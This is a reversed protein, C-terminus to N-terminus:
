LGNMSGKVHLHGHCLGPTMMLRSEKWNSVEVDVRTYIKTQPYETVRAINALPRQSGDRMLM